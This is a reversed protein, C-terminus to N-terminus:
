KAAEVLARNLAETINCGWKRRLLKLATEAETTIYFARQKVSGKYTTKRAPFVARHNRAMMNVAGVSMSLAAAIEAAKKGAEWMCAAENLREHNTKM